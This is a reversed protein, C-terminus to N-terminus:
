HMYSGANVDITTGTAHDGMGSTLFGVWHAVDEPKTLESLALDGKVHDEGYQELFNKAMPTDVFGPAVEFAKVQNKGFYRAISKVLSHMGGKSAAYAWYEPTDGRFAARSSIFILRGENEKQFIEVAEKSMIGSARLNTDMTFDWQQVWKDSDTELPSHLAVGANHVVTDLAGFHRYCDRILEQCQHPDTLDAQFLGTQNGYHAKLTQLNQYHNHYHLGVQAGSRLLKDAIANGIGGNSGTVIATKGKLDM